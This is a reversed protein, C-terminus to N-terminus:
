GADRRRLVLAGLGIGVAVLGGPEPVTAVYARFQFEDPEPWTGALTIKGNSTSIGNVYGGRHAPTDIGHLQLWDFVEYTGEGDVFIQGVPWELSTFGSGVVIRGDASCARISDFSVGLDSFGSHVTYRHLTKGEPGLLVYISSGDESVASYPQSVASRTLRRSGDRNWIAFEYGHGVRSYGLITSGDRSIATASSMHEGDLQELLTPQGIGNWLTARRVMGRDFFTDGVVSSGDMSCSLAAAETSLGEVIGRRVRVAGSVGETILNGVITSGDGSIGYFGGIGYSFDHGFAPSWSWTNFTDGMSEANGVVTGSDAIGRATSWVYGEPHIERYQARVEGLFAILVACTLLRPNCKLKNMM